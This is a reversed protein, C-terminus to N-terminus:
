ESSSQVSFYSSM